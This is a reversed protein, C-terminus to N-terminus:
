RGQAMPAGQDRYHGLPCNRWGRSNVDLVTGCLPCAPSPNLREDEALQKAEDIISRLGGWDQTM